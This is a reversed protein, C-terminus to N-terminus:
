PRSSQKGAPRYLTLDAGGICVLDDGGTDRLKAMACSAAPAGTEIVSKRWKTGLSDEARYAFVGGGNGRFGAIIADRGDGDLDATLITHGDKLGEDIVSRVWKDKNEFYVAVENGHWPEIAAIYRRKGLHGVTVDSTGCKPWAATSGKNIETRRWGGNKQAEYLDIGSFSATLLDDKGPESWNLVFVGHQVGENERGVLERKWIEPRYFVLPAFAHDEPANVEASTLAANILVKKGDGFPSAWRLRHSTPLEDIQEATWPKMVDSGHRLVAVVGRSKKAQMSFEYAVAIEPIGDGDLDEAAANILNRLGTALVHRTWQPNEFWVLDTQGSALAILDIKGDGNIDAPVVQYGGKLDNAVPHAEWREEVGAFGSLTAFIAIWFLRRM